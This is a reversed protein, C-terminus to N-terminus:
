SACHYTNDHSISKRSWVALRLGQQLQIIVVAGYEFEKGIDETLFGHGEGYFHLSKDLNNFGITIIAVRPKMESKKLCLQNLSADVM